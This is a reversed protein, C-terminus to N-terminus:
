SSKGKKRLPLAKNSLFIMGTHLIRKMGTEQKEQKNLSRTANAFRRTMAQEPLGISKIWKFLRRMLFADGFHLPVLSLILILPHFFCASWIVSLISDGAHLGM